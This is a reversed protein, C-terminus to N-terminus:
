PSLRPPAPAPTEPLAGDDRAEQGAPGDQGAAFARTIGGFAEAFQSPIVFVKNADGKAL